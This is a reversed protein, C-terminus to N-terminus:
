DRRWDQKSNSELDDDYNNNIISMPFNIKIIKKFTYYETDIKYFDQPLKSLICM